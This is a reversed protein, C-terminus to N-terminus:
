VLKTWDRNFMEIINDKYTRRVNRTFHLIKTDKNPEFPCHYYNYEETNLILIKIEGLKYITNYTYNTIDCCRLLLRNLAEQDSLFITNKIEKIWLDVFNLTNENYKFFCVGANSMGNSLPCYVEKEQKPRITIGIDFDIDFLSNFNKIAYADSDMWTINSQYNNLAEKIIYPKYPISGLAWKNNYIEETIDKFFDDLYFPIGWNMSKEIDYIIPEYGSRKNQNVSMELM